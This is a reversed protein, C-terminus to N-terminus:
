KIFGVEKGMKSRLFNMIQDTESRFKSENTYQGNLVTSWQRTIGAMAIAENIEAQVAGNMIAAQTNYYVCYNCPTQAAVALGILDKYKGPIATEPNMELGKMEKWLGVIGSEPYRKIFEPVFGFHNKIDTYADQPTNISVEEIKPKTEMAQINQQKFSFKLLRDVESKFMEEDVQTGSLYASWRRTNGALAIAEKLEQNSAKNLKAAETHFYTCFRCPVQATVALGILEKYKGPITSMSNLQIGKMDQWAGAIGSEPFERLFTPVMGLTQRIDKYTAEVEPTSKAFAGWTLSLCLFLYFFSKM